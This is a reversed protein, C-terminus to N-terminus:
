LVRDTGDENTTYASLIVPVINSPYKYLYLNPEFNCSGIPLLLYLSPAHRLLSVPQPSCLGWTSALLLYTVAYTHCMSNNPVQNYKQRHPIQQQQQQQQKIVLMKKDWNQTNSANILIWSLTM